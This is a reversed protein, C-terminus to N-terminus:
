VEIELGDYALSIKLSYSKDYISAYKKTEQLIRDLSEDEYTPESHFMCLHKVDSRIALEVAIMNSSHGWDEKVHIADKLTYQTDFILLDANKFFNIFPYDEDNSDDKHESDTSYVIKKGNKEFSYGYSKQPHNQEMTNIKFGAIEYEKEPELRNFRIDAQMHALPVPFCPPKQQNNFVQELNHFGYFDIQNGKTFAPVFFPFGCIHDWHVHSMIIHFHYPTKGSQMVYNGFDRIGTGSDLIILEEHDRIEVCSTNTGYSGKVSFPLQTDIFHQIDKESELNHERAAEIARYIKHRITEARMPAPLSGRSGWIMVKM